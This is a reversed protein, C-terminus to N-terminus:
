LLINNNAATQFPLKYV